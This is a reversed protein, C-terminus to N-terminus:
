KLGTGLAIAAVFRISTLASIRERAPAIANKMETAQNGFGFGGASDVLQMNDARDRALKILRKRDV